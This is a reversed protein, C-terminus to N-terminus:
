YAGGQPVRGEMDPWKGFVLVNDDKCINEYSWVWIHDGPTCNDSLYKEFTEFDEFILHGPASGGCYFRHEVIIVGLELAEKIIKINQNSFIKNGEFSWIDKNKNDSM